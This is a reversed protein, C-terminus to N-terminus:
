VLRAKIKASVAGMDARGQLQPRLANMVAGMAQMGSAGLQDITATILTDIEQESLAQPLFAQLVLVEAQEADALDKRGAAEFQSISDKRQKVMKTMVAIIEDDGLTTRSDVEKQKVEAMILRITGLRAKDKAVMAAKMESKLLEQLSM